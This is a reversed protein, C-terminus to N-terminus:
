ELLENDPTVALELLAQALVAELQPSQCAAWWCWSGMTQAGVEGKGAALSKDSTCVFGPNAAGLFFPRPQPCCAPGVVLPAPPEQGAKTYASGPALDTSGPKTGAWLRSQFARQLLRSLERVLALALREM